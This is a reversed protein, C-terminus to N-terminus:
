GGALRFPRPCRRRLLGRLPRGPRRRRRPRAPLRPLPRPAIAAHRDEPDTPGLCEVSADGLRRASALAQRPPAFTTPYPPTVNRRRPSTTGAGTPIMVVEGGTSLRPRRGMLSDCGDLTNM